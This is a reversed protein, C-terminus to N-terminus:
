DFVMIDEKFFVYWGGIQNIINCTSSIISCVTSDWFAKITSRGLYYIKIFRLVFELLEIQWTKHIYLVTTWKYRIKSLMTPTSRNTCSISRNINFVKCRVNYIAGSVDTKWLVFCPKLYRWLRIYIYLTKETTNWFARIWVM